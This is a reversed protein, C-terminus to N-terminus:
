VKKRLLTFDPLPAKSYELPNTFVGWKKPFSEDWFSRWVSLPYGNRLRMDLRWLDLTETGPNYGFGFYFRSWNTDAFLVPSPPLLKYSRFLHDLDDFSRTFKFLYDYVKSSTYLDRDPFQNQIKKPFHQLLKKVGTQDILPFAIRLFGDIQDFLTEAKRVQRNLFDFLHMRFGPLNLTEGHPTFQYSFEKVQLPFYTEFFQQSLFQQTSSDLRIGQYFLQGPLLTQDRAWTYSFGKDIWGEKFPTLGPRFIFAHTPGYMLMGKKPENEYAKTIRYPLGKMLDLLFILLEMPSSIFHNEESLDKELCYYCRILTHMNGGSTYSWPKKEIQNMKELLDSQEPTQHMEGMRKIASSLFEDTRLHHILLTTLEELLKRGEQWECVAAIEPEITLFFSTLSQIYDKESHVLTWTLPNGRGHKYLLRFGAPADDYLGTQVDYMEPDYIEQFYQPFKESYQKLLFEFFHSLNEANHESTDRNEKCIEAHHARLDLEGKLQRIREYTSAQRLLAQTLRVEDIAQVYDQHLKETKENTQTLRKELSEYLLHGIGGQKKPDFGLSAYLNWRFFEIKYDSFSALTYEWTKLLAHDTFSKFTDKAEKELLEAQKQSSHHKHVAEHILNEVTTQKIEVASLPTAAVQLAAQFSPLEVIKPHVPKKLDGVGWSPSIPVTHQVGAFTRSLSSTMVLDYLDLLLHEIQETQILIAPATAFCSGINQRLPTLLATLVAQRLERNTLSDKLSIGLSYRILREIYTNAVPMKFRYFLNSLTKNTNFADLVFTFSEFVFKDNEGRIGSFFIPLEKKLFHGQADLMADAIMRARALSRFLFPDQIESSALIEAIKEIEELDM